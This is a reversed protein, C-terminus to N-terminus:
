AEKKDVNCTMKESMRHCIGHIAMGGHDNELLSIRFFDLKLLKRHYFGVYPVIIMKRSSIEFGNEYHGSQWQAM